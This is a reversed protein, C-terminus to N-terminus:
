CCLFYDFFPGFVPFDPPRHPGPPDALWSFVRNKSMKRTKKMIGLASSFNEVNVIFIFFDGFPVEIIQVSLTKRYGASWFVFAFPYFPPKSLPAFFKRRLLMFWMFASLSLCFSVHSSLSFLTLFSWFVLTWFPDFIALFPPGFVPWFLTLFRSKRPRLFTVLMFFNLSVFSHLSLFYNM